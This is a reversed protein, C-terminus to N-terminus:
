LRARPSGRGPFSGWCLRRLLPFGAPLRRSQEGAVEIAPTQAHGRGVFRVKTFGVANNRDDRATPMAATLLGIVERRAAMLRGMRGLLAARSRRAAAQQEGTLQM